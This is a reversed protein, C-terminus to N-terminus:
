GTMRDDNDDTMVCEKCVTYRVKGPVMSHGIKPKGSKGNKSLLPLINVYRVVVLKIRISTEVKKYGLM